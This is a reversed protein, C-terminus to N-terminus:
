VKTPSDTQNSSVSVLQAMREAYHQLLAQKLRQRESADEAQVYATELTTLREAQHQWDAQLKELRTLQQEWVSQQLQLALRETAQLASELLTGLAQHWAQLVSPVQLQQRERDIWTKADDMGLRALQRQASAIVTECDTQGQFLRALSQLTSIRLKRWSEFHSANMKPLRESDNKWDQLQKELAQLQRQHAFAQQQAQLQELEAQLQQKEVPSHTRQLKARLQLQLRSAQLPDFDAPLPNAASEAPTDAPITRLTQLQHNIAEVLRFLAAREGPGLTGQLQRLKQLYGAEPAPPTPINGAQLQDWKYAQCRLLPHVVNMTAVDKPAQQGQYCGAIGKLAALLPTKDAAADVQLAGLYKKLHEARQESHSMQLQQQVNQAVQTAGRQTERQLQRQLHQVPAAPPVPVKPPEPGRSTTLIDPLQLATPDFEASQPTDVFAYFM